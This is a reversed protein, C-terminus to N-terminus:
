LTPIDLMQAEWTASTTFFGGALAPSVSVRAPFIGQLLAHCGVGTNKGLSDWPCLPAQHAGTWPTAFLRVRSCHSPAHMDLKWTTSFIFFIRKHFNAEKARGGGGIKKDHYFVCNVMKVM